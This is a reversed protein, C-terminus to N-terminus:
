RIPPVLDSIWIPNSIFGNGAWWKRAPTKPYEFQVRQVSNDLPPFEAVFAHISQANNHHLIFTDLPYHHLKRIQYREGTDADVICCNSPYLFFVWEDNDHNTANEYFVVYTVKKSPYIVANTTADVRAGHPIDVYQFDEYTPFTEHDFYDYNAGKERVIKPARNAPLDELKYNKKYDGVTSHKDKVQEEKRVQAFLKQEELSPKAVVITQGQPQSLYVKTETERSIFYGDRQYRKLSELYMEVRAEALPSGADDGVSGAEGNYLVADIKKGDSSVEANKDSKYRYNVRNLDKSIRIVRGDEHEFVYGDKQDGVPVFGQLAFEKAFEIFVKNKDRVFKQIIKTVDVDRQRISDAFTSDAATKRTKVDEASQEDKKETDGAAMQEPAPAAEDGVVQEVIPEASLLPAVAEEQELTERINNMVTPKAFVTLALLTCPLLYLAKLAAKRSSPKKYMMTFRKKISSLVLSNAVHYSRNAMNNPSTVQNILLEQYEEADVGSSLLSHDVQYEHLDKLDQLLMWGVPVFWLMRATFEALLLDLSHRFRLHAMEHRVATDSVEDPGLIIWCMWSCPTVAVRSEVVRVWKPLGDIHVRRGRAILIFLSILSRLYALWVVALGAAYVIIIARLWVNIRSWSSVVTEVATTEEAVETVAVPPTDTEEVAYYDSMDHIFMEVEEVHEAVPAAYDTHITCLPLLM